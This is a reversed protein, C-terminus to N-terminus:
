KPVAQPEKSCDQVPLPVGATYCAANFPGGSLAYPAVTGHSGFWAAWNAEAKTQTEPLGKMFSDAGEQGGFLYLAAPLGNEGPVARWSHVLDVPPGLAAASWTSSSSNLNSLAWACFGGVRPAFSFPANQRISLICPTPINAIPFPMLRRLLLPPSYLSVEFALMNAQSTFLFESTFKPEGDADVSTYQTSYLKDGQANCASGDAHLMMCEVVDYGGLAVPVAAQSLAVALALVAVFPLFM